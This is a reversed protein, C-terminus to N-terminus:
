AKFQRQEAELARKLLHVGKPGVGHLAALAAETWTTLEAVSRINANALARLAPGGLGKPFASENPHTKERNTPM